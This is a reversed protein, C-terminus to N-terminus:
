REGVGVDLAHRRGNAREHRVLQRLGLRDAIAEAIRRNAAASYHAHDVYAHEHLTDLADTVFTAGARRWNDELHHFLEGLQAAERTHRYEPEDFRGHLAGFPQVVTACRIAYATCLAVREALIRGHLVRLPNAVGDNRCTLESDADAAPPAATRLRSALAAALARAPQGFESRYPEQARAVILSLEDDDEECSENIGDLFIALRPREGARLYYTLLHNENASSHARVGFNVVPRGILAELRAPITEADAVGVGLTTSGGFFWVAERLDRPAGGNSRVGRADINVFRSTRADETLGRAISYRASLSLTTRWLEEVEAPTMHAYARRAQDGLQGYTFAPVFYRYARVAGPTGFEVALLLLASNAAVIWITRWHRM